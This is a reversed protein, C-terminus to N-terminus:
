ILTVYRELDTANIVGAKFRPLIKGRASVNSELGAPISRSRLDFRKFLEEELYEKFPAFM